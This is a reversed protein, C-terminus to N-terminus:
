REIARHRQDDPGMCLLATQRIARAYGDNENLLTSGARSDSYYGDGSGRPPLTRTTAEYDGALPV